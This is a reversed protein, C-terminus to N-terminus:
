NKTRQEENCQEAPQVPYEGSEDIWGYKAHFVDNIKQAMEEAIGRSQWEEEFWTGENEELCKLVVMLADIMQGEETSSLVSNLNKILNGLREVEYRAENRQTLWTRANRKDIASMRKVRDLDGAMAQFDALTLTVMGSQSLDAAGYAALTKSAQECNELPEWADGADGVVFIRLGEVTRVAAKVFVQNGMIWRVRGPPFGRAPKPEHIGIMAKQKESM